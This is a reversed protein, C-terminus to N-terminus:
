HFLVVCSVQYTQLTNGKSNQTKKRGTCTKDKVVAHVGASRVFLNTEKNSFCEYFCCRLKSLFFEKATNIITVFIKCGAQVHVCTHTKLFFLWSLTRPHGAFTSHCVQGLVCLCIENWSVSLYGAAQRGQSIILRAEAKLLLLTISGSVVSCFFVLTHELLDEETTSSFFYLSTTQMHHRKQFSREM